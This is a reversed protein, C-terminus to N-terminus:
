KVVVKKGNRIYLGRKLQGNSIRQGALNFIQDNDLQGNDITTIGTTSDEFRFTFSKVNSTLTSAPLLAKGAPVTGANVKVFENGSLGYYTNATVTKYGTLGELKNTSSYDTIEANSAAVPINIDGTDERKLLVGTGSAVTGTIQSFTITTGSIDTIQWASVNSVSSFDLPFGSAFTGYGSIANVSAAVSSGAIISIPGVGVNSGKTFYLRIYRVSSDFSRTSVLHLIDDKSGSITLAEGEDFDNGDASAKVNITSTTAGGAM